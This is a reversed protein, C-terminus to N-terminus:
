GKNPPLCIPMLTSANFKNGELITIGTAEDMLPYDIRFLAIDYDHRKTKQGQGLFRTIWTSRSDVESNRGERHYKKHIILEVIEFHQMWPPNASILSDFINDIGSYM